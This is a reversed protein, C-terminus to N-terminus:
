YPNFDIVEKLSFIDLWPLNSIEDFIGEDKESIIKM